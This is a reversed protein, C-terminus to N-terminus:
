LVTLTLPVTAFISNMLGCEYRVTFTFPASPLTCFHAKSIPAAPLRRLAPSLRASRPPMFDPSSTSTVASGALSPEFLPRRCCNFSLSPRTKLNLASAAPLTSCVPLHTHSKYRACDSNRSCCQPEKGPHKEGLLKRLDLTVVVSRRLGGTNRGARRAPMRVQGTHPITEAVIQKSDWILNGVIADRNFVFVVRTVKMAARRNRSEGAVCRARQIVFLGFARSGKQATDTGVPRNVFRFIPLHHLVQVVIGIFFIRGVVTQRGANRPGANRRVNTLHRPIEDEDVWALA